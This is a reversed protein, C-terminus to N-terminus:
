LLQATLTSNFPEAGVFLPFPQCDAPDISSVAENPIIFCVSTPSSRPGLPPQSLCLPGSVTVGTTVSRGLTM